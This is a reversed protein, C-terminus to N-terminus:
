HRAVGPVWWEAMGVWASAADVSKGLADSMAGFRFQAEAAVM